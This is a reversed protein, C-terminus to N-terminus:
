SAFPRIHRICSECLATHSDRVDGRMGSSPTKALAPRPATSCRHRRCFSPTAQVKQEAPQGMSIHPPAERPESLDPHPLDARDVRRRCRNRYPRLRDRYRTAPGVDLQANRPGHRVLVVSRALTRHLPDCRGCKRQPLHASGGSSKRTIVIWPHYPSSPVRTESIAIEHRGIEPLDRARGRGVSAPSAPRCWPVPPWGPPGSGDRRDGSSRPPKLGDPAAPM